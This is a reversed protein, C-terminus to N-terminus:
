VRNLVAEDRLLEIATAPWTAAVKTGEGPRSVVELVGGTAEVREQMGALGLGAGARIDDPLLTEDFGRGDDNISLALNGGDISLSVSVASADAHKQINNLAEQVVRYVAVKVPEPLCADEVGINCGMTVSDIEDAFERCLWEVAVCAGVEDLLSPSLNRSIKRVDEAASRIQAVIDDFDSFDVAPHEQELRNLRAEIGYKIVGLMQAIGDHLDAAIRRREREQASIVTTNIAPFALVADDGAEDRVANEVAERDIGAHAELIETIQRRLAMNSQLVTEYEARMRTIDTITLLANRRRRDVKVDRARPPRALNFRFRGGAVEDALEWEVCDRNTALSSWAKKFLTNFRCTGDCGSHIQEHLGEDVGERLEAFYSGALGRNIYLVRTDRDLALTVQPPCRISSAILDSDSKAM